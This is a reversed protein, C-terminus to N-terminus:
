REMRIGYKEAVSRLAEEHGPGYPDWGAGPDHAVGNVRGLRLAQALFSHASHSWPYIWTQAMPTTPAQAVYFGNEALGPVNGAWAQYERWGLTLWTENALLGATLLILLWRGGWPVPAPGEERSVLILWASYMLPLILNLTRFPYSYRILTSHQIACLVMLLAFSAGLIRMRTRGSLLKRPLPRGSNRTELWFHGCVGMFWAAILALYVPYTTGQLMQLLSAQNSNGSSHMLRWANATGSAAFLCLTGLGALRIHVTLGSWRPWLRWVLLALLAFSYFAWFEYLGFSLAGLVALAPWSGIREPVFLVIWTAALLFIAAPTHSDTVICLGGFGMLLWLMLVYVVAQLKLGRRLLLFVATGHLLAPVLMLGAGFCWALWRIDMCGAAIAVPAPWQTLCYTAARGEAPFFVSHRELIRLFFYAGDAYFFRFFFLAPLLGAVLWGFGCAAVLRSDDLRFTRVRSM